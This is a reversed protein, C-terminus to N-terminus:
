QISYHQFKDASDSSGSGSRSKLWYLGAAALSALLVIDFFGFSLGFIEFVGEAAAATAAADVVQEEVNSM